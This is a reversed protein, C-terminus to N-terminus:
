MEKQCNHNSLCRSGWHAGDGGTTGVVVTEVVQQSM